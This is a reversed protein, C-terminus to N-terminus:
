ITLRTEKTQLVVGVNCGSPLTDTNLRVIPNESVPIMGSIVRGLVPLDHLMGAVLLSSHYELSSDIRIIVGENLGSSFPSIISVLNKLDVTISSIEGVELRITSETLDAVSFYNLFQISLTIPSVFEFAGPIFDNPTNPILQKIIPTSYWGGYRLLTVIVSSPSANIDTKISKIKAMTQLPYAEGRHFVQLLFPKYPNMSGYLYSRISFPSAGPLIVGTIAVENSGPVGLKHEGYESLGTIETVAFGQKEFGQELSIDVTGVKLAIVSM